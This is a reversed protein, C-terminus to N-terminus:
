MKRSIEDRLGSTEALVSSLEREKSEMASGVEECKLVYNKELESVKNRLSLVEDELSKRLKEAQILCM